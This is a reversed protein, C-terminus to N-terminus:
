GGRMEPFGGTQLKLSPNISQRYGDIPTIILEGNRNRDVGWRYNGSFTVQKVREWQADQEAHICNYRLNQKIEYKMINHDFQTINISFSSEKRNRSNTFM